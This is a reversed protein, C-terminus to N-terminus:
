GQQKNFTYAETKNYPAGFDQCFRKRAEREADHYDRADIDYFSFYSYDYNGDGERTVRVRFPEPKKTAAIAVATAFGLHKLYDRRRM